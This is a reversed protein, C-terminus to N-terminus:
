GTLVRAEDVLLMARLGDSATALVGPEGGRVARSFAELQVRLSAVLPHERGRLRLALARLAGPTSTAALQRGGPLRAVARERHPRDTAASLLARGRALELEVSAREATASATRVRAAAGGSLFVALDALHAGLDALADDRVAIPRWSDRRYHLELELELPGDEPIEARLLGLRDFRRNFGIWPAPDLAALERAGAADPAPPKEVLCPLGAAAALRAHELHRQPPSAIVVAEVGSAIVQEATAHARAGAATAVQRRRQEDPDAVAVLEVSDAGVAAPVYGLETLRGCGVIGIRLTASM